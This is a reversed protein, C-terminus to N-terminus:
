AVRAAYLLMGGAAASPIVLLAIVDVVGIRHGVLLAVAGRFADDFLGPVGLVAAAAVCLWLLAIAPRRWAPLTAPQPLRAMVRGAFGDDGIYNSRHEAGDARLAQEPWDNATDLDKTQMTV